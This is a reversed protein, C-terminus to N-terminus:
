AIAWGNNLLWTGCPEMHVVISETNEIYDGDEDVKGLEARNDDPDFEEGCHECRSLADTREWCGAM